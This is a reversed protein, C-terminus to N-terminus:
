QGNQNREMVIIKTSSPLSAKTLSLGGKAYSVPYLEKAFKLFKEVGDIDVRLGDVRYHMPIVIGPSLAAIYRMAERADITYNGGVPILLIDPSLGAPLEEARMGCDGLHVIRMGDLEFSFILNEGRKAGHVDDHMSRFAEITAGGYEYKGARDFLKDHAVASVNNHDYHGHSVTLIDASLPPLPLGVDGFPDTVIRLGAGSELAFCSHGIYDIQMPGGIFINLHLCFHTFSEGFLLDYELIAEFLDSGDIELRRTRMPIVASLGGAFFRMEGSTGEEFVSSFGSSGRRAMILRGGCLELETSEGYTKYVFRFGKGTPFYEGPSAFSSKEGERETVIRIFYLGKEQEM